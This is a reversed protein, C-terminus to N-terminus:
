SKTQTFYAAVAKELNGPGNRLAIELPLDRPSIEVTDKIGDLIDAEQSDVRGAFVVTPIGRQVAQHVVGMVTKGGLTQADFSGEGTLVLDADSLADPLGVIQSILDVGSKPTAGLVDMFAWGLGGAAGAGPRTHTNSPVDPGSASHVAGVLRQLVEELQPVDSPTAGKQPGFVATAGSPGLLPNSVDVAVELECQAIRPDLKGLDVRALSKIGQPNPEVDTGDKDLFRVGLAALAGCGGDNTSSGGLGVTIRNAGRDLADRVLEGLGFSSQKWIDRTTSPVTQLGIAEASEIFASRESGDWAYKAVRQQGLPGLVHVEVLAFRSGPTSVVAQLSGEGGDAMPCITAHAHPVATLLGRRMADAAMAASMSEKFSDPAIVVKVRRNHCDIGM